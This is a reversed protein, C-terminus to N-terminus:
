EAARQERRLLAARDLKHVAGGKLIAVLRERHQLLEVDAEPDGDVLLLDAFYGERVQGAADGLGMLEADIVAEILRWFQNQPNAYYQGKALSIEGPLSGLVLVRTREDVVPAFSAKLM